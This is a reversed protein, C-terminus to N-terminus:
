PVQIHVIVDKNNCLMFPMCSYIKVQGSLVLTSSSKLPVAVTSRNLASTATRVARTGIGGIRRRKYVMFFTLFAASRSFFYSFCPVVFIYSLCCCRVTFVYSLCDGAAAAAAVSFSSSSEFGYSFHFFNTLLWNATMYM